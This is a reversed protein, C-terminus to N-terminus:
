NVGRHFSLSFSRARKKIKNSFFTEWIPVAAAAREGRLIIVDVQVRVHASVNIRQRPPSPPLPPPIFEEVAM